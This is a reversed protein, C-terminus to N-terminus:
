EETPPRFGFSKESDKQMLKIEGFQDEYKKINDSLALHLQKAHQPTMIIRSQVTAKMLGPMMRAFDIVVEAPSHTILALNSYIGEGVKEDLQVQIQQKQPKM